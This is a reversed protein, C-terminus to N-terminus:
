EDCRRSAGRFFLAALIGIAVQALIFPLLEYTELFARIAAM